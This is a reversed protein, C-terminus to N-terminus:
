IPFKIWTKNYILFMQIRPWIFKILFVCKWLVKFLHIVDFLNM